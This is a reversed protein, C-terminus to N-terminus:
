TRAPDAPVNVPCPDVGFRLIERSMQVFIRARPVVGHIGRSSLPSARGAWLPGGGPSAVVGDTQLAIVGSGDAAVGPRMGRVGPIRRMLTRAPRFGAAPAAARALVARGGASVLFARGPDSV